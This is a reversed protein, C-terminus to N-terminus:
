KNRLYENFYRDALKVQYEWPFKLFFGKKNGHVSEKGNKHCENGCLPILRSHDKKDSSYQKIHHWEIGDQPNIKHCRICPRQITQVYDLYAQEEKTITSRKKGFTNKSRQGKIGFESM